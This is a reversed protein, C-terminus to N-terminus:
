GLSQAFDFRGARVFLGLGGRALAFNGGRDFAVPLSFGNLLSLCTVGLGIPALFVERVLGAGLVTEDHGLM